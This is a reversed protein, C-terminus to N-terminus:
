FRTRILYVAVCLFLAPAMWASFIPALLGGKGFALGVANTVYFAFGIMVALGLSMFTLAKRRGTMLALPLGVLLIVLNGFPFAIKQHMDVRLNNIAKKAGSHEFRRIYSALQKINMSSVNLRQRMFDKPTEKIDMLKEDYYRVEESRPNGPEKVTTMQCKYFKWAIGTWKGELAVIKERIQQDANQGIITIGKLTEDAPSFLDVFFLRNNLGYFTLNKIEERKRKADGKIVINEDRISESTMTAQPVFSENMWFMMASVLIGFVIAPRAIDWFSQGGARLVIIENHGNANSFTLLCAILCAIPMTQSLIIPLYTLYYQALIHLPVKQKIFEDLNSAVDILVYLFAFILIIALFAQIIAILNYREVIRM